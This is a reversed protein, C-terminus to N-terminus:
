LFSFLFSFLFLFLFIFFSFFFFLFFSFFFFSFLFFFFSFLFFFFSFLFHPYSSAFHITQALLLGNVTDFWYWFPYTSSPRRILKLKFHFLRIFLVVVTFCFLVLSTWMSVQNITILNHVYPCESSLMSRWDCAKLGISSENFTM